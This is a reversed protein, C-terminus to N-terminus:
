LQAWARAEGRRRADHIKLAIPDLGRRLRLERVAAAVGRRPPRFAPDRLAHLIVSSYAHGEVLRLLYAETVRERPMLHTMALDTFVGTGFGLDIATFALDFDECGTLNAGTRGLRKRRPDGRVHEAYRQAVAARACLGAGAPTAAYDFAQNSWRDRATRHVALYALYPAFEPSPEQEWEPQYHGCGWVGLMPWGESRAVARELYDPALVNDDDVFVLLPAAAAGIGRLRAATLGLEPEVLVRSSPPGANKAGLAVPATSANDVIILDWRAHDLTQSGLSELTRALFDERPNHTCVIVSVSLPNM